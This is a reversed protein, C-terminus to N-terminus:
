FFTVSVVFVFRFSTFVFPRSPFSQFEVGPIVLPFFFWGMSSQILLFLSSPFISFDTPFPFAPPFLIFRLRGGLNYTLSNFVLSPPAPAPLSAQPIFCTGICFSFSSGVSSALILLYAFFFVVRFTLFTGHNSSPFLSLSIGTPPLYHVFGLFFFLFSFPGGNM